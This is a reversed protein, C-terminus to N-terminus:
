HRRRQRQQGLGRRGLEKLGNAVSEGGVLWQEGAHEAILLTVGKPM